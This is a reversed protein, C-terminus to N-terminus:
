IRGLADRAKGFLERPDKVTVLGPSFRAYDCQELVEVLAAAAEAAVGRAELGERLQEKTMAQTDLDHRDGVYGMVAQALAAHFGKEDKRKLMTEAQRLRSRVLRSSRRRRAYGRDSRLRREHGRYWLAVALAKLSLVYLLNPWWPVAFPTVALRAADAKIYRIDSGLVKLGTAEVLPASRTSGTASFEFPGASLTRYARAQPDFYAIRVPGVVHKGDAQPIIPYRFTKTGRVGDQGARVDDRVEPDLIRLGAVEPLVPKEILRVNGSGAIRLTLSVPESGSTATRDLSASLTFRGVGGTFEPPRGEEPLPLVRITIPKSEVRVTQPAGFLGFVDGSSRVVVVNFVMPKVTVDGPAVPSLAVTKLRSVDYAKGEHVGRQFDFREADHIKEAWFGDFSPPEAWGGNTIRLRTYLAIDLVVPEGVYVTRRSPVASLFLNGEVPVDGGRAPPGPAAPVPQAQGPAARVVTVEVPQTEYDRGEYTLRCPPIVLRGLKKAALVHLFTVSAQKRMRGNVISINTSQSSSSGLLEFDPLPPLVPKPVTVMGEGQVILDLRFQEGLGVTTRDVSASFELEAAGAPAAALLVGLLLAPLLLAPRVLAVMCSRPGSRARPRARQRRRPVPSM